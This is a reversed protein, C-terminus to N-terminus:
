YFISLKLRCSYLTSLGTISRSEFITHAPGRNSCPLSPLIDPVQSKKLCWFLFVLGAPM